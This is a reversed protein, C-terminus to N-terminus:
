SRRASRLGGPTKVEVPIKLIRDAAPSVTVTLTLDSGEAVTYTAAGFSVEVATSSQARMGQSLTLAMVGLAIGVVSLGQRKPRHLPASSDASTEPKVARAAPRAGTTDIGSRSLTRHM